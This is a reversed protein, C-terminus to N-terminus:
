QYFDNNMGGVKSLINIFYETLDQQDSSRVVTTDETFISLGGDKDEKLTYLAATTEELIEYKNDTM